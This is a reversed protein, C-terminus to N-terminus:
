GVLEVSMLADRSRQEAKATREAGHIAKVMGDLAQRGADTLALITGRNQILGANALKRRHVALSGRHSIGLVRRLQVSDARGGCRVLHLLIDFRSKEFVLPNM